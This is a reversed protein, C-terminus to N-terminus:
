AQWLFLKISNEVREPEFPNKQKIGKSQQSFTVSAHLSRHPVHKLARLGMCFLRWIFVAKVLFLWLTVLM